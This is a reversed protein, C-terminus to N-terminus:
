ASNAIILSLRLLSWDSSVAIHSPTLFALIEKARGTLPIQWDGKQLDVKTVYKTNGIKDICDDIKPLPFAVTKTVSKVKRYM